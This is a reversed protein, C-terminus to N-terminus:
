KPKGKAILKTAPAKIPPLEPLHPIGKPKKIKSRPVAICIAKHLKTITIHPDSYHAARLPTIVGDVIRLQEVLGGTAKDVTMAGAVALPADVHFNHMLFRAVQAGSGIAACHGKIRQVKVGKISYTFTYVGADTIILLSFGKKDPHMKAHVCRAYFAEMDESNTRLVELAGRSITTNGATGVALVKGGQFWVEEKFRHIKVSNDRHDKVTSARSDAALIKGDWAITTM